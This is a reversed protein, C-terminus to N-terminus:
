DDDDSKTIDMNIGFVRQMRVAVTHKQQPSTFKTLISNNLAHYLAGKGNHTAVIEPDKRYQRLMDCFMQNTRPSPSTDLDGSSEATRLELALQVVGKVITDELGKHELIEFEQAPTPYSWIM